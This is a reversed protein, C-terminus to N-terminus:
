GIRNGYIDSHMLEHFSSIDVGTSAPLASLARYILKKGTHEKPYLARYAELLEMIDTTGLERSLSRVKRGNRPDDIAVRIAREANERISAAVYLIPDVKAFTTPELCRQILRLCASDESDEAGLIYKDRLQDLLHTDTLTTFESGTANALEHTVAGAATKFITVSWKNMRELLVWQENKGEEALKRLLHMTSMKTGVKANFSGPLRQGDVRDAERLVSVSADTNSVETQGAGTNGLGCLQYGIVQKSNAPIVAVSGTSWTIRVPMMVRGGKILAKRGVDIQPHQWSWAPLVIVSADGSVAGNDLIRQADRGVAIKELSACLLSMSNEIKEERSEGEKNFVTISHTTINM